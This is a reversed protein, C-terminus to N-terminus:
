PSQATMSDTPVLSLSQFANVDEGGTDDGGSEAFAEGKSVGPVLHGAVHGDRAAWEHDSDHRQCRYAGVQYTGIRRAFVCVMLWFENYEGTERRQLWASLGRVYRCTM